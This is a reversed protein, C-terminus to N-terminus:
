NFTQLISQCSTTVVTTDYPNNTLTTGPRQPFQFINSVNYILCRSVVLVYPWLVMFINSGTREASMLRPVPPNTTLHTVV